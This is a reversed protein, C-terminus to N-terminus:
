KIPPYYAGYVGNSVQVPPPEDLFDDDGNEASQNQGPPLSSTPSDPEKKGKGKQKEARRAKKDRPAIFFLYFFLVSCIRVLVVNCHSYM